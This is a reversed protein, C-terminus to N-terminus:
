FSHKRKSRILELVEMLDVNEKQTTLSLIKAPELLDFFLACFVLIETIQLQKHKGELKAIDTQKSTHPIINKFHQMYLGYKNLMNHLTDLKHVIWQTGTAHHPKVQNDEIEYIEKLLEHLM